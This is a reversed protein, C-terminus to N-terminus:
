FGTVSLFCCFMTTEPVSSVAWHNVPRASSGLQRGSVWMQHSLVVAAQLHATSEEPRWSCQVGMHM